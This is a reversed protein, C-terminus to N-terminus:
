IHMAVDVAEHTAAYVKGAKKADGIVYVEPVVNKIEEGFPDYNRTGLALVISDFGDLVQEPADPCTVDGYVIGDKKFERIAANTLLTVDHNKLENLLM